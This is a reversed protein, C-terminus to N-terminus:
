SFLALSTVLRARALRSRRGDTDIQDIEAGDTVIVRGQRDLDFAAVSKAVVEEESRPSKKVLVWDSPARMAEEGGETGAAEINQREVLRRADVQRGKTNGSTVLPKGTYRMTVYDLYRFGAYLLRFPAFVGDKMLAEASARAPGEHYPRRMAYLVGESTMQPALYDFTPASLITKLQGGEADLLHIQSPALAAVIGNAGRGLGVSQYVLQHRGEKTEPAVPVWSPAGDLTDGDTVLASDGGEEHM